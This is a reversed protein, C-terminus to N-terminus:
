HSGNDGNDQRARIYEELVDLQVMRYKGIKVSPIRDPGSCRVKAYVWSKKVNLIEAVQGINLLSTM